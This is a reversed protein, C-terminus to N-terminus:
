KSPSTTIISTLTSLKAAADCLANYETLTIETTTFRHNNHCRRRRRIRGEHQYGRSDIVGVQLSGCEPCPITGRVHGEIRLPM